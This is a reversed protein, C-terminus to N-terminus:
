FIDHDAVVPAEMLDLVGKAVNEQSSMPGARFLRIAVVDEESQLQAVREKLKDVYSESM